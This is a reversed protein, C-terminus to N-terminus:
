ASQRRHRIIRRRDRETAGGWVGQHERTGLAHELCADQVQCGSCVQQAATTEDDPDPFFLSTAVGRCAAQDQWHRAM